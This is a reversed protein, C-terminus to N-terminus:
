VLQYRKRLLWEAGLLLTAILLTWGDDWLDDPRIDTPVPKSRRPPELEPLEWLHLYRGGASNDSLSRLTVEDLLLDRGELSSRVVSFLKEPPEDDPNDADASLRYQGPRTPVITLRYEGPDEQGAAPVRLEVTERTGPESGPMDLKLTQSAASADKYDRDLVVLTIRVTDDLAYSDRDTLIKFRENGGLLRYTALYRIAEGYFRYFYRDDTERRLRWLEEVGIYLVRGRGYLMTAILPRRGFKNEHLPEASVALVRALTKARLAPYSVYQRWKEDREWLSKSLQVDGAVNMLPSREGEPTIRFSYGRTTDIRPDMAESTRDIVVPLLASLPTDRYRSPNNVGSLMILGGGKEVFEYINQWAREALSTTAGLEYPDVDGIIVVDYEFLLERDPVGLTADLRNWGPTETAKQPTDQDGGLLLTHALM